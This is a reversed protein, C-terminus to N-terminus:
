MGSVQCHGDAYTANPPQWTYSSISLASARARGSRGPRALHVPALAPLGGAEPRSPDVRCSRLARKALYSIRRFM